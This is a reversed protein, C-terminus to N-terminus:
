AMAMITGVIANIIGLVLGIISMSLGGPSRGGSSKFIGIIAVPIGVIPLLWAILSIIGLTRGTKAEESM